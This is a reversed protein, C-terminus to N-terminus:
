PRAEILPQLDARLHALARRYLQPGVSVRAVGIARLQELSGGELSLGANVPAGVDTVVARLDEPGAGPVFVCDAGASWYADARAIADARRQGGPLPSTPFFSDIRANIVLPVGNRNAATRMEGIYTARVDMDILGGHSHDSDEINCGVVGIGTLLDTLEDPALGYGAEADITVPVDVSAAIRQAILMMEDAPAGEGDDYGLAAAIANSATAIVPFGADVIARASGVDWANPLVLPAGPVHLSRLLAAKDAQDAM